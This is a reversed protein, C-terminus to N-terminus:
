GRGPDPYPTPNIDSIVGPATHGGPSSPSGPQHGRGASGGKQAKDDEKSDQHSARSAQPSSPIPQPTPTSSTM